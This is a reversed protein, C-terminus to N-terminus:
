IKYVLFKIEEKNVLAKLIKRGVESDKSIRSKGDKGVIFSALLKNNIYISVPKNALSQDFSLVFSNGSESIECNVEKGAISPVKPLIEIAIGLSNEIEKIVNGNKGILLPVVKNDVKVICKDENVIEIEANRDFRKIVDYIKRKALREIASEKKVEVPIIINEEGFSYIEYELSNTEFDRVEVVPRALDEDKMGTPIKVKINLTYVKKVEGEKIFIVTDIIHPLTGLEARSLFRQIADLPSSAHVVGVMGIGALRLDSFIQFDKTKRVEDFIVYDPRVLLLVDATKEFDGELATYQTIREDVQMDRPSELTKVVANKENLYFEALATAFSTKGSGPPGCVLVGEAREKLREILKESLKYDSLSLKVLPRVITIEIGDSFPPRAISIRYNRIQIIMSGNRSIEIYADEKLRVYELIERIIEELYEAKLPENGIEVLKFNGPRGKKAIPIVNEKLHVSMTFEDFFDEFKLKELKVESPFYKVIIGEAEAVIAQVYDSTYLVANNKRAEEMILADIRGSRALKIDELTPREGSFRLKIKKIECLERIKKVENLGIFGVNKGKSAQNQLEDLAALPIIVENVKEEDLIKSIIGDIIVSTDCVIKKKSM